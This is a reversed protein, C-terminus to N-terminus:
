AGADKGSSLAEALKRKVSDPPDFIAAPGMKTPDGCFHLYILHLGQKSAIPGYVGAKPDKVFIVDDLQPPLQMLRTAIFQEGKNDDESHIKAIAEFKAPDDGVEAKWADFQAYAEEATQSGGYKILIQSLRAIRQDLMQQLPSYKIVNGVTDFIGMSPAVTRTRLSHTSTSPSLHLGCALLSLAGIM